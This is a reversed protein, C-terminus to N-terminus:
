LVQRQKISLYRAALQACMKESDLLFFGVGISALLRQTEKLGSWIFHGALERYLDDPSAVEPSSFLPKAGPPRPMNVIVLHRATAMRTCRAFSEVTVADDLCTLFLLLARRPFRTGIFSFVESFDPMAERPELSFLLDRCMAQHAKGTGAKVFRDVHDSFALVGFRDGQRSATMGLVLAATIFRELLTAPALGERDEVVRASHRSADLVVYIEQSSELQYVKTVPRGRKATAKWHIDEFNDGAAYERLAEFERGKGLRRQAHAGPARRIFIGAMEMRGAALDPVVRVEMRVAGKKRRSWLGLPSPTELYYTDLVFSGRAVARCPWSVRSAGAQGPLRVVLTEQESAIGAPLCLAMGLNMPRRRDKQVIIDLEGKRGKSLRFVAPFVLTVGELIRRSFFADLGAIFLFAAIAATAAYSAVGRASAALSFPLVVILTWVILRPLPVIM